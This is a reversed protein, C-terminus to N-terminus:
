VLYVTFCAIQNILKINRRIMECTGYSPYHEINRDIYDWNKEIQNRITSFAAMEPYWGAKPFVTKKNLKMLSKIFANKPVAPPFPDVLHNICARCECSFGFHHELAVQCDLQSMKM